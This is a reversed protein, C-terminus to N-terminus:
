SRLQPPLARLHHDGFHLGDRKAEELLTPEVRDCDVVDGGLRAVAKGNLTEGVHGVNLRNPNTKSTIGTGLM